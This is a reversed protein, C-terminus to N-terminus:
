LEALLTNRDADPLHRPRLPPVPGSLDFGRGPLTIPGAIPDDLTVAVGSAAAHESALWEAPTRVRSVPMESKTAVDDWWAAPHDRVLDAFTAMIRDRKDLSFTRADLDILGETEWGGAVGTLRSRWGRARAAM